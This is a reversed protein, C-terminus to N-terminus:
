RPRKLSTLDPLSPAPLKERSAHSLLLAQGTGEPKLRYVRDRRVADEGDVLSRVSARKGAVYRHGGIEGAVRHESLLWAHVLRWKDRGRSQFNLLAPRTDQLKHFFKLSERGSAVGSDITQTQIWRDWELVILRKAEQYKM